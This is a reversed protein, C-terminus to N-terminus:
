IILLVIILEISRFSKFSHSVSEYAVESTRYMNELEDRKAWLGGIEQKLNGIEDLRNKDIEELSKM